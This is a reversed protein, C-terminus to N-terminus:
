FSAFFLKPNLNVNTRIPGTLRFIAPSSKFEFVRYLAYNSSFEDSFAVENASILFPQYKGSNTTKVEVYM